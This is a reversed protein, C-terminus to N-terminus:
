DPWVCLSSHRPGDYEETLRYIVTRNSATVTILDGDIVAPYGDLRQGKRIEELIEAAMWVVPDAQEIVLHAPTPCPLGEGFWDGVVMRLDGPKLQPHTM